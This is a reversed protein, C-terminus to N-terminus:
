TEMPSECSRIRVMGYPSEPDLLAEWGRARTPMLWATYSGPPVAKIDFAGHEDITGGFFSLDDENDEPELMLEAPEKATWAPLATVQGRVHFTHVLIPTLTVPLEDGSRLDLPVALKEDTRGPYYTTTYTERDGSTDRFPIQVAVLYRGPELNALRCQGLDDTTCQGTSHLPSRRDSGHPVIGYPIAMVDMGSLPDGDEDRVKGVITAAPKMHFLLDKVEQGPELTLLMRSGHHRKEADVFGATGFYVRYSGPKVGEFKFRGEADTVARYEPEDQWNESASILELAVKRIPLGGSQQIIQGQVTCNAPHDAAPTQAGSAPAFLLCALLVFWRKM